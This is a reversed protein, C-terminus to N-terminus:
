VNLTRASETLIDALWVPEKDCREVTLTELSTFVGPDLSQMFATIKDGPDSLLLLKVHGNNFHIVTKLTSLDALPYRYSDIVVYLYIPCSENGNRMSEQLCQMQMSQYSRITRADDSYWDIWCRHTVGDLDAITQLEGSICTYVEPNIGCVFVFVNFMELIGSLSSGVNLITLQVSENQWESTIFIASFFEQVSKHQFFVQYRKVAIISSDKTQCLLGVKLCFEIEQETMYKTVIRRDFILSSEKNESFLTYFALKGLKMLLIFYRKCTENEKMCNPVPANDNTQVDPLSRKNLGRELTFETINSYIECKSKGIPLGGFFVCM